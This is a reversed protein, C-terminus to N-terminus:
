YKEVVKGKEGVIKGRGDIQHITLECSAKGRRSSNVNRVDFTYEFSVRVGSLIERTQLESVLAYSRSPWRAFYKRKDEQVFEKALYGKDYFDVTEGYLSMIEGIDDSTQLNLYRDVLDRIELYTLGHKENPTASRGPPPSSQVEPTSPTPSPSSQRMAGPSPTSDVYKTEGSPTVLRYLLFGLLVVIIAALIAVINTKGGAIQLRPAMGGQPGAAHLSLETQSSTNEPVSDPVSAKEKPAAPSLTLSNGCKICFKGSTNSHGCKPCISM